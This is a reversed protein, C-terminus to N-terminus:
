GDCVSERVGELEDPDGCGSRRRRRARGAPGDVRGRRAPNQRAVKAPECARTVDVGREDEVEIDRAQVPAAVGDQRSILAREVRGDVAGGCRRVPYGYIGVIGRGGDGRSRDRVGEGVLRDRDLLGHDLDPAAGDAGAVLQLPRHLDLDRVVEGQVADRHVVEQTVARAEVGGERWGQVAHAHVPGVVRGETDHSVALRRDPELDGVLHRRTARAALHDPAADGEGARVQRVARGVAAGGRGRDDEARDDLLTVHVVHRLDDLAVRQDVLGRGVAVDEVRASEYRGMRRSVDDAVAIGIDHVAAGTGRDGDIAAREGLLDVRDLADYPGITVGRRDM